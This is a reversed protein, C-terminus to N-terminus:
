GSSSARAHALFNFFDDHINGRQELQAHALSVKAGREQKMINDRYKRKRRGKGSLGPEPLRGSDQSLPWVIELNTIGHKERYHKKFLSRKKAPHVQTCGPEQCHYIGNSDPDLIVLYKDM